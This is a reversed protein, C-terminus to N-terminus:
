RLFRAFGIIKAKSGTEARIGAVDLAVQFADDRCVQRKFSQYFRVRVHDMVAQIPLVESPYYRMHEVIFKAALQPKTQRQPQVDGGPTWDDVACGPYTKPLRTRLGRKSSTIMYAEAAGCYGDVGIRVASRGIAQLVADDEDGASMSALLEPTPYTEANGSAAMVRACTTARPLYLTGVLVIRTCDRYENTAPHRGWTVFDVHTSIGKLLAGTEKEYDVGISEKSHHVVLWRLDPERNIAEATATAYEKWNKSCAGKGGGRNWIHISLRSYDWTAPGLLRVPLGSEQEQRYSATVRASADMILMPALGVPISPTYAVLAKRAGDECVLVSAGSLGKLLRFTELARSKKAFVMEAAADLALSAPIHFRDGTKAGHLAHALDGITKAFGPHLQQLADPLAAIATQYLVVPSNFEKREDWTRLLRPQGGYNLPYLDAYGRGSQALARLYQQPALVVQKKKPDGTNMAMTEDDRCLFGVAEPGGIEARIAPMQDLRSVFMVMGVHRLEPTRLLVRGAAVLLTTKGVGVDVPSVYFLPPEAQGSAMLGLVDAARGLANRQLSNLLHNRSRLISDREELLSNSFRRYPLPISAELFAKKCVADGKAEEDGYGQQNEGPFDSTPYNDTM